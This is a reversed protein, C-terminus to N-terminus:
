TNQQALCDIKTNKVFQRTVFAYYVFNDNGNSIVYLVSMKDQVGEILSKSVLPPELYFIRVTIKFHM